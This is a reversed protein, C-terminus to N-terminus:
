LRSSTYHVFPNLGMGCGPVRTKSFPLWALGRKVLEYNKRVGASVRVNWPWTCSSWDINNMVINTTGISQTTIITIILESCFLKLM